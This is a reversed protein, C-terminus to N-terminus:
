TAEQGWSSWTSGPPSALHALLEQERKDRDSATESADEIRGVGGASKGNGTAHDLDPWYQEPVMRVRGGFDPSEPAVDLVVEAVAHMPIASSARWSRMETSVMWSVMWALVTLLPLLLGTWSDFLRDIWFINATVALATLALAPLVLTVYDGPSVVKQREPWAADDYFHMRYRYKAM